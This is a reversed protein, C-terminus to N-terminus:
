RQNYREDNGDDVHNQQLHDASKGDHFHVVGLGFMLGTQCDFGNAGLEDVGDEDGDNDVSEDLVFDVRLVSQGAINEHQPNSVGERSREQLNNIWEEQHITKGLPGHLPTSNAPQRGVLGFKISGILIKEKLRAIFIYVKDIQEQKGAEKYGQLGDDGEKSNGAHAHHVPSLLVREEVAGLPRHWASIEDVNGHRLKDKQSSDTIAQTAQSPRIEEFLADGFLSKKWIQDGKSNRQDDCDYRISSNKDQDQFFFSLNAM